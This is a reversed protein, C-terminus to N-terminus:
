RRRTVTQDLVADPLRSLFSRLPPLDKRATALILAWDVVDYGHRAVNGFSAMGVWDIAPESAKLRDPLFRSAESIIELSREIARRLIWSSDDPSREALAAEIADIERIIDAVRARISRPQM